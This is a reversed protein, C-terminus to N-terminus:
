RRKSCVKRPYQKSTLLCFFPSTIPHSTFEKRNRTATDIITTCIELNELIEAHHFYVM